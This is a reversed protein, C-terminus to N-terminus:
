FRQQSLNLTLLIVIETKSLTSFKQPFLLCNKHGAVKGKGVIDKCPKKKLMSLLQSQAYLENQLIESGLKYLVTYFFSLTSTVLMNEKGLLTKM